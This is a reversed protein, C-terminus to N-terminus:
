VPGSVTGARPRRGTLVAQCLAPEPIVSLSWRQEGELELSSGPLLRPWLGNAELCRSLVRTHLAPSFDLTHSLLWM